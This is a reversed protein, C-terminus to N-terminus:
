AKTGDNEYTLPITQPNGASLSHPLWMATILTLFGLLGTMLFIGHFCESVTAALQRVAPLSRTSGDALLQGLPDSTTPLAHHMSLTLIAGAAAAGVAQGLFRMFMASSTASGREDYTVVAQVSVIQTTTCFGLGAGVISAGLIVHFVSPLPSLILLLCSGAMIAISGACATVRYPVHVIIQGSTVNGLVWIVMVIGLVVGAANTGLGMSAQMFSPLFALVIMIVAGVTFSGLSVLVVLRNKWLHLPLLPESARSEQHVLAALSAIGVASMLAFGVVGMQQGRDAALFVAGIGLVLLLAGMFDLKHRALSPSEHLFTLIMIIATASFPLNIWFVFRWSGAAVLLAGLTPGVIAAAGFVGSLMGQLRAREAPTYIDGVITYAIPQVVGAGVGQLARFLILSVMGSAWGCLASGILFLATGATFVRRRGYQDALRGYIPITVAQTLMYASFVWSYLDAGHLDAVITPMATAVVTAEIAATATAMMCAVLILTRRSRVPVGPTITSKEM